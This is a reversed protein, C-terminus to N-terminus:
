SVLWWVLDSFIDPLGVIFSFRSCRRRAINSLLIQVEWKCAGIAVGSYNPWNKKRRKAGLNVVNESKSKKRDIKATHSICQKSSWTNMFYTKNDFKRGSLIKVNRHNKKKKKYLWCIRPIAAVMLLILYYPGPPPPGIKRVYNEHM